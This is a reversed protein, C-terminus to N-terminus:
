MANPIINSKQLTSYNHKEHKYRNFLVFITLFLDHKTKSKKERDWNGGRYRNRGREWDNTRKHGTYTSVVDLNSGYEMQQKGEGEDKLTKRICLHESM